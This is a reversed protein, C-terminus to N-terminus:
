WLIKIILLRMRWAIILLWGDLKAMFIDDGVYIKRLRSIGFQYNSQKAPSSFDSLSTIDVFIHLRWWLYKYWSLILEQKLLNKGRTM